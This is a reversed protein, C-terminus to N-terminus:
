MSNLVIRDSNKFFSTEAFRFNILVIMRTKTEKLYAYVRAYKSKVFQEEVRQRETFTTRSNILGYLCGGRSLHLRPCSATEQM